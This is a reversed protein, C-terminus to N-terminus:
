TVALSELDALGQFDQFDKEICFRGSLNRQRPTKEGPPNAIRRASCSM